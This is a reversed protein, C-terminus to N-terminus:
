LIIQSPEASGNSYHQIFGSKHPIEKNFDGNTQTCLTSAQGHPFVNHLQFCSLSTPLKQSALVFLNSQNKVIIYGNRHCCFPLPPKFSPSATSTLNQCLRERERRSPPWIRDTRSTQLWSSVALLCFHFTPSCEEKCSVKQYGSTSLLTKTRAHTNRERREENRVERQCKQVRELIETLHERSYSHKERKTTQNHSCPWIQPKTDGLRSLVTLIYKFLTITKFCHNVTWHMQFEVNKHCSKFFLNGVRRWEFLVLVRDVHWTTQWLVM